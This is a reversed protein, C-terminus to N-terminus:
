SSAIAATGVAGSRHRVAAGSVHPPRRRDADDERRAAARDAAARVRRLDRRRHRAAHADHTQASLHAEAQLVDRGPEVRHRCGLAAPRDRQGADRLSDPRRRLREQFDVPRGDADPVAPAEGGRGATRARVTGAGAPVASPDLRRCLRRPVAAEPPAHGAAAAAPRSRSTTAADGLVKGGARSSSGSRRRATRRCANPRASWSCCRCSPSTTSQLLEGDAVDEEYVIQMPVGAMLGAALLEYVREFHPTGISNRQETIDQHYSYLVAAENVPTAEAFIPGYRKALENATRFATAGWPDQFPKTHQVGAGQVGRALVQMLNKVYIDGGDSGYGNDFVGMLPLGPRRLFEVSHAPYWPYQYGESLFHSYSESMGQYIEPAYSGEVAPYQWMPTTTINAAEGDAERVAENFADYMTRLAHRLMDPRPRDAFQERQVRDLWDADDKTWGQAWGGFFMEDNYNFGYFSPFRGLWQASRQLVPVLRNLHYDRFRVGDCHGLLQTDYHLGRRVAEDLYMEAEWNGHGSPLAFYEAPPLRPDSTAAPGTDRRWGQPGHQPDLKGALRDTERTFGLRAVEATHRRIYDLREPMDVLDPQQM